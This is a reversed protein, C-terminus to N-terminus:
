RNSRRQVSTSIAVDVSSALSSGALSSGHPTLMAIRHGHVSNRDLEFSLASSQGNGTAIDVSQATRGPTM